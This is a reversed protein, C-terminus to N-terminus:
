IPRHFVTAQSINALHSFHFPYENAVRGPFKREARASAQFPFLQKAPYVEFLFVIVRIYSSVTKRTVLCIKRTGMETYCRLKLKIKNRSESQLKM